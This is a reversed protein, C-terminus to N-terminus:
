RENILEKVINYTDEIVKELEQNANVIHADKHYQKLVLEYGEAVKEHFEKSENDLRDQEGRVSVRKLGVKLPVSLFITADPWYDEIAFKNVEFVEEMGIGRAYGQYALSSGIFRDCLVIKGSELAPIVKEVLHQRRSAAYLLAETKADMMTNKTDLIIDRIEESIGIGGPERTYIVDEGDNVLMEYVAKSVTTKGSGDNGEFTIFMSM